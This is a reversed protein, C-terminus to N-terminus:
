MENNLSGVLRKQEGGSADSKMKIGIHTHLAEEQHVRQPTARPRAQAAVDESQQLFVEWLYLGHVFLCQDKTAQTLRVEHRKDKM